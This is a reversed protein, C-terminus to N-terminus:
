LEQIDRMRMRKYGTGRQSSTVSASPHPAIRYGPTLRHAMRHYGLMILAEIDHKICLAEGQKRAPMGCLMCTDTVM